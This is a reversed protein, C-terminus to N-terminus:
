PSALNSIYYVKDFQSVPYKDLHQKANQSWTEPTWKDLVDGLVVGFGHLRLLLSHHLNKYYHYAYAPDALKLIM